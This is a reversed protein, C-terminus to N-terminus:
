VKNEGKDIWWDKDGGHLILNNKAVFEIVARAVDHTDAAFNDGGIIGDDNLKNWYLEIDKKVYNYEHNGDIYVFDINDPIDNIAEDSKKKIFICRDGFIKLNEKVIDFSSIMEKETFYELKYNDYYIYPDILYLKKVPCVFLINKANAGKYVGIEAGILTKDKFKQRVYKIMPRTKDITYENITPIEMILYIKTFHISHKGIFEIIKTRFETEHLLDNLKCQIVDGCTMCEIVYYIEGIESKVQPM